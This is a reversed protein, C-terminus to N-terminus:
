NCPTESLVLEPCLGMEPVDPVGGKFLWAAFFGSLDQEAVDEAVSIFDDTTVNRGQYREYYTQLVEYFADDGLRLRLAHLTWAGQLYVGVNFLDDAPPIGPSYSSGALLRYYREVNSAMWVPGRNHEYWLWSLYTAFGENLWIDKWEALAVRNGFWQHALEHAVVEEILNSGTVASRSFLSLTQTELAFSLNDAVYVGYAEFPYPAIIEEFFAIMEPTSSFDREARSALDPPFYNRIPLGGPGVQEQVVYDAIGLTVLYSATLDSAEWVFTRETGHDIVEQLLGNAAVTYPQPVTIRFTYTALDLPHDNVPYWHSAGDPQSAVYVGGDYRVWGLEIPIAEPMFTEPQGTYSIVVTFLAGENVPFPPTIMLEGGSRVYEAPLDNVMIEGIKFGVFDLNFASLTQLAAAQMTMEADLRNTEMDVDLVLTYHLADYGGNGLLPFYDDGLGDTGPLPEQASVAVVSLLFWGLVVILRKM